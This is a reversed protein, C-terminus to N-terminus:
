YANIGDEEGAAGSKWQPELHDGPPQSCVGHFAQGIGCQNLPLCTVWWLSRWSKQKSHLSLPENEKKPYHITFVAVVMAMRFFALQLVLSVYVCFLLAWLIGGFCRLLSSLSDRARASRFKGYRQHKMFCYLLGLAIFESTNLVILPIQRIRAGLLMWDM